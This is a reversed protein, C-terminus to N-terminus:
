GYFGPLPPRHVRHVSSNWLIWGNCCLDNHSDISYHVNHGLFFSAFKTEVQPRPLASFTQFKHSLIHPDNQLTGEPTEYPSYRPPKLSIDVKMYPRRSSLERHGIQPTWNFRWGDADDARFCCCLRNYLGVFRMYECSAGDPPRTYALSDFHVNVKSQVLNWQFAQTLATLRSHFNKSSKCIRLPYNAYMHGRYGKKQRKPMEWLQTREIKELSQKETFDSVKDIQPSCKLWEGAMKM